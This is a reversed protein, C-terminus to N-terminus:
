FTRVPKFVRGASTDRGNWVSQGAGSFRTSPNLFGDPAKAKGYGEKRNQIAPRDINEMISSNDKNMIFDSHRRMLGNREINIL